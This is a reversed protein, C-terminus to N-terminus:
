QPVKLIQGVTLEPGMDQDQYKRLLWLPVDLRRTVSDVTDGRKVKYEVMGTVRYDSFLDEEVAQHYQLRSLNFQMQNKEPLPVKLKQGVMIGRRRGLHNLAQLRAVPVRAWDAFHGLTEDPQVVVRVM